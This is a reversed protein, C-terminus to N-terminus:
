KGAGKKGSRISELEKDTFTIEVDGGNFFFARINEELKKLILDVGKYTFLRYMKLGDGNKRWFERLEYVAHEFGGFMFRETFWRRRINHFEEDSMKGTCIIDLIKHIHQYIDNKGDEVSIM